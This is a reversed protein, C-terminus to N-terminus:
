MKLIHFFSMSTLGTESDNFNSFPVDTIILIELNEPCRQGSDLYFHLLRQFPRNGVKLCEPPSQSTHGTDDLVAKNVRMFLTTFLLTFLTTREWFWFSFLKWKLDETTVAGVCPQSPVNLQYYPMSYLWLKDNWQGGEYWICCYCWRWLSVWYWSNKNSWVM